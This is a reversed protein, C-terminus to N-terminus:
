NPTEHISDIHWRRESATSGPLDNIRRLTVTANRRFATGGKLRGYLVVPVEVYVQSMGHDLRGPKGVRARYSAYSAFSAAFAAPGSGDGDGFWLRRAERYRHAGILAYYARVVNAAARGSTEAAPTAGLPGHADASGAAPAGGVAGLVALMALARARISM